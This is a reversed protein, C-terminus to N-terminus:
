LGKPVPFIEFPEIRESMEDLHICLSFYVPCKLFAHAPDDPQHHEKWSLSVLHYNLGALVANTSFKALLGEHDFIVSDLANCVSLWDNSLGKSFDSKEDKEVKPLSVDGSVRCATDGEQMRGESVKELYGANVMVSMADRAVPEYFRLLQEREEELCSDDPVPEGPHLTRVNYNGMLHNAVQVATLETKYPCAYEGRKKTEAQFIWLVCNTLPHEKLYKKM